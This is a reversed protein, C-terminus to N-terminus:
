TIKQSNCNFLKKIIQVDEVIPMGIVMPVDDIFPVNEVM